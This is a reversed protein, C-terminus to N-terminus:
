KGGKLIEVYNHAKLQSNCWNNYIKDKELRKRQNEEASM